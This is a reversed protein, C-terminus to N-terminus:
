ENIKRETVESKFGFSNVGRFIGDDFKTVKKEGTTLVDEQTYSFPVQCTGQTALIRVTIITHQPVIVEYDTSFEETDVINEGWRYSADFESAIVLSATAVEPIGAQITSTIGLKMSKNADWIKAKTAVYKLTLTNKSPMSGANVAERTVLTRVKKDSVKADKLHYDLGYIRRSLVAEEIKVRAEKKISPIAANLCSEKYEYTLRQCFYNNGLNKLAFVGDEGVEVVEFLTDRNNTSTDDTDSWIWNPSRRWFKNYHDSKVRITRKGGIMYNYTTFRVTPDGIDHSAFQLYPHGEVTRASLYLGNDGKFCVHKPLEKPDEVVKKDEVVQSAIGSVGNIGDAVLDGASTIGSSVLHDM